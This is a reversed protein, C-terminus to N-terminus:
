NDADAPDDALRRIYLQRRRCNFRSARQRALSSACDPRRHGGGALISLTSHPPPSLSCLCVVFLVVGVLSHQIRCFVCCIASVQSPYSSHRPDLLQLRVSLASRGAAGSEPAGAAEAAATQAAHEKILLLPSDLWMASKEAASGDVRAAVALALRAQMADWVTHDEPHSDVILSVGSGEGGGSNSIAGIAGVDIKLALDFSRKELLVAVHQVALELVHGTGPSDEDGLLIHVGTLEVKLGLEVQAQVTRISKSAFEQVASIHREKRRELLARAIEAAEAAGLDSREKTTTHTRTIGGPGAAAKAAASKAAAAKAAAAAARTEAAAAAAEDTSTDDSGGAAVAAGGSATILESATCSCGAAYGTSIDVLRRILPVRMRATMEDVHAGIQVAAGLGIDVRATVPCILHWESLEGAAKVRRVRMVEGMPGVLMQINSLQVRIIDREDYGPSLEEVDTVETAEDMEVSTETWTTTDDGNALRMATSRPDPTRIQLDGLHLM